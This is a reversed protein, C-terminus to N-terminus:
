CLRLRVNYTLRVSSPRGSQIPRGLLRPCGKRLRGVGSILAMKVDGADFPKTLTSGLVNGQPDVLHLHSGGARCLHETAAACFILWVSWGSGSLALVQAMAHASASVLYRIQARSLPLRWM